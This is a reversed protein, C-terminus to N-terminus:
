GQPSEQIIQDYVQRAKDYAAEADKLEEPRIRARKMEWCRDVGRRCWEASRKSARIPKGDVLVFIPNTHSTYAIRLAMWSSRDVQREFRIEQWRGDAPIERRDVPEGNVLLEVAVRRTKGIRAREVDWYPPLNPPRSAIIAGIEDQVEPLYATARATIQVTKAGSLKVESQQTGLEVGNVKFDILHSKGDSVYSRGDRIMDVFRDFDLKGELRAYTRALGVRDDFICPYDTEGSIRVRFGTNLTHYWMNLEWPLPTDGASFFDVAQHAVTVIYENAGIGDFKPMVYNPLAQAPETPELGWGSHAYGVAGGQARAWKLVPLTWSPWEEIKSTGPYDDEQLRLLCVHGAHSSPFGSVEVDYRLVNGENSLPHVKGKFFTKQYYWCPGWSLVCAVNLDEGVAERWMHEPLVGEEPSEYHSCGAAHVHHDGSYWGLQAMHVWRKLQLSVEFSKSNPPVKVHKTQPLYEPGRGLVFQYEGPPLYVHEGDARYVQPHFFFDPFEDGGAHRRSPLPYLGILRKTGRKDTAGDFKGEEWNRRYALTLRYDKPLPEKEPDELIREVGDTIVLSAMTPAGGEDKIRLVVKVSPQCNFLVDVANRFGIDQTGQGIHFGIKAERQGSTRSYIQLIAYELKLGSLQKNMPRQRYMSLELFRNAVEGPAIVNEDKRRPAGTSGHFLPGANPSEAELAANVAAENHVKVLFTKWGNQVLEATAPGRVIKVRAEPNIEVLALCYPDLITQIERAVEAGAPKQQLARLSRSDRSSLLSGLSSLAEDLRIAQALLPQSSGSVNVIPLQQSYGYQAVVLCVLLNCWMMIRQM